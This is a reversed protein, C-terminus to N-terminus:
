FKKESILSSTFLFPGICGFVIVLVWRFLFFLIFCVALSSNPHIPLFTFVFLSFSRLSCCHPDAALFFNGWIVFLVLLVSSVYGCIGAGFLVGFGMLVPFVCLACLFPGVVWCFM